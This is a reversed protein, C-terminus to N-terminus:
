YSVDFTISIQRGGAGYGPIIEFENDFLDQIQIGLRTTPNIWNGYNISFVSVDDIPRGIYDLGKDFEGAYEFSVDGYPAKTVTWAFMTRYKAQSSVDTDILGVYAFFEGVDTMYTKRINMGRSIYNGTNVYQQNASDYDIGESFDYYFVSVLDWGVTLGIAEESSLDPSAVVYDDGYREYLSPRRVSNGLSINFKGLKTGVRITHDGEETRIGLGVNNYDYNLYGAVTDRWYGLTATDYSERQATIGVLLGPMIEKNVDSYIRDSKSEWGTNHKSDDLTYGFTFNDNRLSTDVKYGEQSCDNSPTWGVWCNDYDYKYEQYSSVLTWDKYERKTKFSITEFFDEEENDTRVSGNSGKYASLQFNEHGVVLNVLGDGGKYFVSRDFNDEILVVGGMSSSGYLATPGQYIKYSQFLPIDLGINYWGSGPDNVPIGNRYVATHKADTGNLKPAMFGGVGGPTYLMTPHLAEIASSDTEPDSDTVSITAGVVIVEEIDSAYVTTTFFGVLLLALLLKTNNVNM